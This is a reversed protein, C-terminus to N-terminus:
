GEFSFIALIIGLYFFNFTQLKLIKIFRHIIDVFWLSMPVIYKQKPTHAPTTPAVILTIIRMLSDCGLIIICVSWVYLEITVAWANTIIKKM